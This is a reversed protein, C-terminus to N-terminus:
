RPSNEMTFTVTVLHSLHKLTTSTLGAEPGEWKSRNSIVYPVHCVRFFSSVKAEWSSAPRIVVIRVTTPVELLESLIIQLLWASMYNSEWDQGAIRVETYDLLPSARCFGLAASDPPDNSNCVCLKTTLNRERALNFLCGGNDYFLNKRTIPRLNSAIRAATPEIFVNCDAQNKAARVGARKESNCTASFPLQEATVYRSSTYHVDQSGENAPLRYFLTQKRALM